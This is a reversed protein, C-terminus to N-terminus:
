DATNKICLLFHDERYFSDWGRTSVYPAERFDDEGRSSSKATIAVPEEKRFLYAIEKKEMRNKERSGEITDIM